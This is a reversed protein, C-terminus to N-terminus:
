RHKLESKSGWITERVKERDARPRTSTRQGDLDLTPRQDLGRFEDAVPVAVSDDFAALMIDRLMELCQPYQTEAGRLLV